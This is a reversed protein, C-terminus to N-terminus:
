SLEDRAGKKDIYIRYYDDMTFPYLGLHGLKIKPDIYCVFGKNRARDCFAWDESLYEVNNYFPVFGGIDVVRLAVDKRILMFGASVYRAKIPILKDRLDAMDENTKGIRFAPRLPYGKYVYAGAVIPLDDAIMIDIADLTYSVIDADMFFLHSCDSELFWDLFHNRARSILSEGFMERYIGVEWNKAQLIMDDLSHKMQFEYYRFIPLGIFIKAKM